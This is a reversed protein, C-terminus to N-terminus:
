NLLLNYSVRTHYCLKAKQLYGSTVIISDLVSSFCGGLWCGGTTRNAGELSAPYGTNHQCKTHSSQTIIIIVEYILTLQRMSWITLCKAFHEKNFVNCIGIKVVSNRLLALWFVVLLSRVEVFRNCVEIAPFVNLGVTEIGGKGLSVKLAKM